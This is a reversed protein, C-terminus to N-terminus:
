EYGKNEIREVILDGLKQIQTLDHWLRLRYRWIRFFFFLGLPLLIGVAMNWRPKRFPRTHADPVLIPLDNMRALIVNDKSNHMIEVLNELRESLDVVTRDEQYQFFLHWYNPMRYLHAQSSYANCDQVLQSLQVKLEKYKPPNIVVEKRNLHRNTRLGLIKRFFAVYGEVNFVVSDKNARNILFLGIPLLVASSLWIGSVINWEGTKAMKESGVNVIYYFIFILVSIVVPVGLGGKRIIAGLPAGIFFFILCALSLTFKKHAEMHHKRLMLNKDGREISQYEFESQTSQAKQMATKWATSKEEDSLNLYISDFPEMEVAKGLLELSDKRGEAMRKKLYQNEVREWIAHGVSDGEHTLSDIGFLIDKLNKTQANGSFLNADMLNFNADMEILDTEQMFSERMYPVEARLANQGDRQSEMNRFREGGWLTLVLHMKDETSQLRGSDALVVQAEERTGATSYIMVGYLMGTERDKREVFINYGPIESYFIGEPIELEPSKQKMSWVLAALQKTAEPSISNQFYFSGLCVVGAFLLVPRLIRTLPIGAAKMSLLELREGMNGFSILSALLVALPLSMPVLTLGSYYFFKLLVETSLGKGILEDVYRWMFQMMFIFLCIFFTGAFLQLYSKLIFLDM